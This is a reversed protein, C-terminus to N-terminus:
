LTVELKEREKEAAKKLTEILCDIAQLLDEQNKAQMVKNYASDSDRCNCGNDVETYVCTCCEYYKECLSCWLIIENQFILSDLQKGTKIGLDLVLDRVKSWQEVAIAAALEGIKLRALVETETMVIHVM